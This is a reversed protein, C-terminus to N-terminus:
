QNLRMLTTLMECRSAIIYRGIHHLVTTYLRAKTIIPLLENYRPPTPDFVNAWEPIRNSAVNELEAAYACHVGTPIFGGGEDENGARVATV